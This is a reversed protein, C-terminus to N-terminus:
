EAELTMVLSARRELCNESELRVVRFRQPPQLHVQEQVLLIIPRRRLIEESILSMFMYMRAHCQRCCPQGAKDPLSGRVEETSAAMGAPATGPKEGRFPITVQM